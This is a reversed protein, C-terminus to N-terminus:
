TIGFGGRSMQSNSSGKSTSKILGMQAAAAMAQARNCTELKRIANKMHMRVTEVSRGIIIATDADTKGEAAWTLCEIERPTLGPAKITDIQVELGRELVFQTFAHSLWLLPDRAIERVHSWNGCTRDTIASVVGFRGGPLHVPVTIGHSLGFDNLYNCAAKQAPLLDERRQIDSWDLPMTGGFCARYYPDVCMFQGWGDEWGIPFNRVNLKLPLWDGNPLRAPRPLYAYLAQTFGLDGAIEMLCDLASSFDTTREMKRRFVQSLTQPSTGM